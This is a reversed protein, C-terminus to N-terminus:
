ANDALTGFKMSIPPPDRLNLLFYPQDSVSHGTTPTPTAQRNRGALWAESQQERGCYGTGDSSSVFSLPITLREDLLRTRGRTERKYPHPQDTTVRKNNNEMAGQQQGKREATRGGRCKKSREECLGGM